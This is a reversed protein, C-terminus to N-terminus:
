LTLLGLSSEIIVIVPNEIVRESWRDDIGDLSKRQKKKRDRWQNTTVAHYGTTLPTGRMRKNQQNTYDIHKPPKWQRGGYRTSVRMEKM